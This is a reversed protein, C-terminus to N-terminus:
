SKIAIEFFGKTTFVMYIYLKTLEFSNVVVIIEYSLYTYM